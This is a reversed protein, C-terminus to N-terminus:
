WVLLCKQLESQIKIENEFAAIVLIYSNSLM